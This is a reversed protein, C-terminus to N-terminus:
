RGCITRQCTQTRGNSCNLTYNETRSGLSGCNPAGVPCICAQGQCTEPKWQCTILDRPMPLGNPCFRIEATCIGSGTCTETKWRCTIPDRQMASGNPCFRIETTCVPPPNVRCIRRQCTKTQGLGCSFSYNELVSQGNIGCNTPESIAPCNCTPPPNVRCVRRQCTKTQGLGCSFSYNELVSQGNIGCNPPDMQPPCNCTQPLPRCVQRQCSINQSAYAGCSHTFNQTQIIQNPLCVLQSTVPCICVPNPRPRPRYHDEREYQEFNYCIDYTPPNYAYSQGLNYGANYHNFSNLNVPEQYTKYITQPNFFSQYYSYNNNTSITSSQLISQFAFQGFTDAQSTLPKIFCCCIM